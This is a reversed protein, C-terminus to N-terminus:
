GPKVSLPAYPVSHVLGQHLVPAPVKGFPCSSSPHSTHFPTSRADPWCMGPGYGWNPPALCLRHVQGRVGKWLEGPSRPALTSTWPACPVCSRSAAWTSSFFPLHTLLEAWCGLWPQCPEEGEGAGVPDWAKGRDKIISMRYGCPRQVQQGGAM